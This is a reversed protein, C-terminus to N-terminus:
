SRLSSRLPVINCAMAGDHTTLVVPLEKGMKYKFMLSRVKGYIQNCEQKSLFPAVGEDIFNSLEDLGNILVGYPQQGPYEQVLNLVQPEGEAHIESASLNGFEPQGDSSLNLWLAKMWDDIPREDQKSM